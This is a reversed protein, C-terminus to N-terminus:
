VNPGHIAINVQILHEDMYKAFYMLLVTKKELDDPPQDATFANLRGTIDYYQVSRPFSSIVTVPLNLSIYNYKNATGSVYIFFYTCMLEISIFLKLLVSASTKRM